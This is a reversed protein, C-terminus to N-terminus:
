SANPIKYKAKKVSAKNQIINICNFHETCEALPHVHPSEWGYGGAM